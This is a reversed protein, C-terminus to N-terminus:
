VRQAGPGGGAAGTAGQSERMAESMTSGQKLELSRLAQGSKEIRDSRCAASAECLTEARRAIGKLGGVEGGSSVQEAKVRRDLMHLMLGRDPPQRGQLRSQQDQPGDQVQGQVQEPHGHRQTREPSPSPDVVADGALKHPQLHSSVVGKAQRLSQPQAAGPCKSSQSPRSSQKGGAAPSGHCCKCVARAATLAAAALCHDGVTSHAAGLAVWWDAHRAASHPCNLSRSGKNRTKRRHM